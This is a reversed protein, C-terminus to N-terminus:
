RLDCLIYSTTKFIGADNPRNMAVGLTTMRYGRAVMRRHAEEQALNVGVEVTLGHAAAYAECAAMLSDLRGGGGAGGRAAGFKLFCVGSGGESGAGTMCVAFADLASGGHVLVVDGVRQALAAEIEASLDLGAVIRNTLRSCALIAKEREAGPLGSLLIPQGASSAQEPTRTMVATLFLPWYGFKQYLAVHKASSAFTFLGSQRIEWKDFLKVTADMLRQAVKKNWFEPLVVLPGFFAFSGWRTAVNLGILRGGERAALVTVHPSRFRPVLLDRDGMFEHPNPMGLFTGFALRVIRGAEEVESKKLVGVKISPNAPM